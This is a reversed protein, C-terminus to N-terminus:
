AARLQEVKFLLDNLDFPKGLFGEAEVQDAAIRPEPSAGTIVLIPPDLGLIRLEEVFEWGDMVPMHMDLIVLSPDLEQVAMLADLGNEATRVAYGSHQLAAAILGCMTEDDEVVLIPQRMSLSGVLRGPRALRYHLLTGAM